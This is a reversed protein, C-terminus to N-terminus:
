KKLNLMSFHRLTQKRHWLSRWQCQSKQKFSWAAREKVLDAERPEFFLRLSLQVELFRLFLDTQPLTARFITHLLHPQSFIRRWPHSIKTGHPPFKDSPSASVRSCGRNWRLQCCLYPWAQWSGCAVTNPRKGPLMKVLTEPFCM